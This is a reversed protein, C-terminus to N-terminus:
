TRLTGPVPPGSMRRKKDGGVQGKWVLAMAQSEWAEAKGAAHCVLAEVSPVSATAKRQLATKRGRSRGQGPGPRCATEQAKSFRLEELLKLLLSGLAQPPGKVGTRLGTAAEPAARGVRLQPRHPRVGGQSSCPQGAPTSVRLFVDTDGSPVGAGEASPRTLQEVILIRGQRSGWACEQLTGQWPRWVQERAGRRAVGVALPCGM